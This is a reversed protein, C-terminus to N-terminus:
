YMYKLIINFIIVYIKIGFNIVIYIIYKCILYKRFVVKVVMWMKSLKDESFLCFEKIVILFRYM